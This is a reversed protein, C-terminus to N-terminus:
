FFHIKATHFLTNTIRQGRHPHSEKESAQQYRARRAAPSLHAATGVWRGGIIVGFGVDIVAAALVGRGFDFSRHYAVQVSCQMSSRRQEVPVVAIPSIVVMLVLVDIANVTGMRGDQVGGMQFFDLTLVAFLDSLVAEVQVEAVYAVVATVSPIELDLPDVFLGYQILCVFDIGDSERILILGVEGRTRSDGVEVALREDNRTVADVKEGFLPTRQLGGNVTQGLGGAGMNGM